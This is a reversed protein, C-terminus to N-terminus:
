DNDDDLDPIFHPRIATAAKEADFKPATWNPEGEQELLNNLIRLNAFQMWGESNESDAESFDKALGHLAASLAHTLVSQRHHLLSTPCKKIKRYLRPAVFLNFFYGHSDSGEVRIVGEKLKKDENLVFMGDKGGGLQIWGASAIIAGAPFRIERGLYIPNLGDVDEAKRCIDEAAIVIPRFFPPSAVLSDELRVKHVAELITKEGNRKIDMAGDFVELTRYMTSPACVVCAFKALGEQMLRSVMNGGSLAYCVSANDSELLRDVEATFGSNPDVFDISEERLVPFPFVRQAM